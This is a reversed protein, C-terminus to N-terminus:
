NLSLWFTATQRLVTSISQSFVFSCVWFDRLHRWLQRAGCIDGRECLQLQWCTWYNVCSDTSKIHWPSLWFSITVYIIRSSFHLKSLSWATQITISSKSQSFQAKISMVATNGCLNLCSVLWWCRNKNRYRDVSRVCVCVCVNKTPFSKDFTDLFRVNPKRATPKSLGKINNHVTSYIM